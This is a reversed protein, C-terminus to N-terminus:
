GLAAFVKPPLPAGPGAALGLPASADPQVGRGYRWRPRPRPSRPPAFAAPLACGPPPGEGAGSIHLTRRALRTKAGGGRMGAIHSRAQPCHGDTSGKLYEKTILDLECAKSRRETAERALRQCRNSPRRHLKSTNVLRGQARSATTRWCRRGHSFVFQERARQWISKGPVRRHRVSPSSTPVFLPLGANGHGQDEQEKVPARKALGVTDSSRGDRSARRQGCLHRKDSTKATINLHV